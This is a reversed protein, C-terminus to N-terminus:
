HVPPQENKMRVEASLCVRMQSLALTWWGPVRVGEKERGCDKESPPNLLRLGSVAQSSGTILVWRSSKSNTGCVAKILWGRSIVWLRSVKDSQQTRGTEGICVESEEVWRGM